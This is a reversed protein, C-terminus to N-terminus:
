YIIIDRGREKGIYLKKDAEKLTATLGNQFDYETLGFTMTVGVQMGNKEVQIAKIKKRIIEVKVYAEDGNCEPFVLLFEEGGMRAALNKGNQEERLIRAVEKLVEDGFDHGYNDNVRKFFDIDCICICFGVNQGQEVMGTLYEMARRRNFLGTLTDTNAQMQLQHNYEVLKGELEQSDKSFVYGIVSLCWFITIINLVQMINEESASLQWVPIRDECMYFLFLGYMCLVGAFIIKIGYHNYSSFFYLILLVMLFHQTGTKWGFCYVAVFIWSIMTINFLWLAYLTQMYYSLLFLVSFFAFAGACYLISGMNHFVTRCLIFNASSYFVMSLLMIRVVVLLKKSENRSSTDKAILDLIKKIPNNKEAKKDM